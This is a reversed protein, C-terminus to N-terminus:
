SFHQQKTYLKDKIYTFILPILEPQFKYSMRRIAKYGVNEILENRLTYGLSQLLINFTHGQLFRISIPKGIDFVDFKSM